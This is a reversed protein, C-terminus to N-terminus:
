KRAFDRLRSSRLPFVLLSIIKTRKVAGEAKTRFDCVVKIGMQKLFSKDEATLRALSDSRFVQGWKVRSGDRTVYGGLDRFNVSGELSVGREATIVGNDGEPTVKFYYRVKRDLGKIDAWTKGRAKFAPSTTDIRHPSEGVYISVELDKLGTEWNIRVADKGTREVSVNSISYTENDQVM